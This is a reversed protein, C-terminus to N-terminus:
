RKDHSMRVTAKKQIQYLNLLHFRVHTSCRSDMQPLLSLQRWQKKRMSTVTDLNLRFLLHRPPLVVYSYHRTQFPCRTSGHENSGRRNESEPDGIVTFWRGGSIGGGVLLRRRLSSTGTEMTHM